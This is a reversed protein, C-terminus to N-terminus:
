PDTRDKRRALWRQPLGAKSLSILLALPFFLIGWAIYDLGSVAQRVHRYTRWSRVALWSGLTGLASAFYWRNRVLRGYALSAAMVLAPYVAMLASPPHDLLKPDITVYAVGATLM